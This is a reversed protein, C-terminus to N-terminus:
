GILPLLTEETATKEGDFVVICDRGRSKAMYLAQDAAHILDELNDKHAPYSAIGASITIRGLTQGRYEVSLLRVADCINRVCTLTGQVDAECLVLSFEEGGYRCALDGARLRSKFVSGIEKMLLDGAQHGFTDNFHKFNDLDLMVVSVPRKTRAARRLERHLSEELYRRNYLGTLPDRISQNRLLERLRLNALALSVREAVAVALRSLRAQQVQWGESLAGGPQPGKDLYMAGLTEGQAILPVCLYDEPYVGNLNSRLHGCPIPTGSGNEGYPKGRRLAWCDDPSFAVETTECNNWVARAEVMDRSSNMICLAGAHSGFINGLASESLKYAEEVTLCSQLLDGLESLEVNQRAHIEADQLAASLRRDAEKRDTIDRVFVVGGEKEGEANILPGGAALKWRVQEGNVPRSCMELGYVSEGRLARALALEETKYLTQGDEKYLGLLEAYNQDLSDAHILANERAAVPNRLIISGSKDAVIVSDSCSDLISQLLRKQEITAHEAREHRAFERNFFWFVLLLSLFVFISRITNIKTARFDSEAAEESRLELLSREAGEFIGIMDLLRSSIAANQAAFEDQAARDHTNRQHSDMSAKLLALRSHVLPDIQALRLQQGPNDATLQRLQAVDRLVLNSEADFRQFQAPDGARIYAWRAAAADTLHAPLLESLELVDRTHSVWRNNESLLQSQTQSFWV